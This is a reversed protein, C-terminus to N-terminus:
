RAPQSILYENGNNGVLGVGKSNVARVKFVYFWGAKLGKL